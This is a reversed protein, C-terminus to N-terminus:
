AMAALSESVTPTAGAGVSQRRLAHFTSLVQNARALVEIRRVYSELNVGPMAFMAVGDSLVDLYARAGCCGLSLAARGTNVVQPVVACAPRGMAPSTQNEVQQAAECLVLTQQANVFLLVVDPLLPASALPAYVVYQPRTALVPIQALDAQTVYDLDGFVKLADGLDIQQAPSMELNHTYMGISCLTHDAATTAIAAQAGDEWFRCGAAVRVAPPNVGSPLTETFSLAVPAQRLDLSKTLVHAWEAYHNELSM